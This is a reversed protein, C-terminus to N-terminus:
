FPSTDFYRIGGDWAAQLIHQVQEEALVETLDGIGAGGFGLKTVVTNTEGLRRREIPEMTM